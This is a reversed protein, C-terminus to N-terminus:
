LSERGLFDRSVQIQQLDNIDLGTLPMIEGTKARDLNTPPRVAITDELAGFPVANHGRIESSM